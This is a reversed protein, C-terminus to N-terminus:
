RANLSVVEPFDEGFPDAPNKFTYSKDVFRWVGGPLNATKRLIFNRIHIMDGADVDGDKDVDAAIYQYPSTFTEIDLLHKSIRAIDFTTVGAYKDTTLLKAAKVVYNASQNVQFNFSGSADTTTTNAITGSTTATLTVNAAPQSNETSLTGTITSQPRPGACAGNNDQVLIYAINFLANDFKDVTWVRVAITQNVDACTFMICQEKAAANYDKLNDGTLARTAREFKVNADLTPRDTCNDAINNILEVACLQSMGTGVTNNYALVTQKDHTNIYPSKCDRGKVKFSYGTKNGCGDKVTYSVTYEGLDVGRLDAITSPDISASSGAVNITSGGKKVSVSWTFYLFSNTPTGDDCIDTGELTIKPFNFVCTNDVVCVDQLAPPTSTPAKKDRIYIFREFFIAGNIDQYYGDGDAAGACADQGAVLVTSGDKLEKRM